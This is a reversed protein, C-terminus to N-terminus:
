EVGSNKLRFLADEIHTIALSIDRAVDSTNANERKERLEELVDKLKDRLTYMM